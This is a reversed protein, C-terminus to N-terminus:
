LLTFLAADEVSGEVQDIARGIPGKQGSKDNGIPQMVSTDSTQQNTNMISDKHQNLFDEGDTNLKYVGNDDPKAELHSRNFQPDPITSNASNANVKAGWGGTPNQSLAYTDALGHLVNGNSFNNYATGVNTKLNGWASNVSNSVSNGVNGILSPSSKTNTPQQAPASQDGEDYGDYMEDSM